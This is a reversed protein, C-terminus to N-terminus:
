ALSATKFNLKVVFFPVFQLKKFSKWAGSIVVGEKNTKQYM